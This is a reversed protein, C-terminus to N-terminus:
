ADSFSATTTAPQAELKPAFAVLDQEACALAHLDANFAM